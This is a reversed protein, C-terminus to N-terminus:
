EIRTKTGPASVGISSTVSRILEEIYQRRGTDGDYLWDNLADTDVDSRDREWLKRIIGRDCRQGAGRRQSHRLAPQNPSGSSSTITATTRDFFFCWTYFLHYVTSNISEWPISPRNEEFWQHLRDKAGEALDRVPPM